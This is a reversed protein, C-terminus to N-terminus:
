FAELRSKIWSYTENVFITKGNELMISTGAGEIISEHVASIADTNILIKRGEARITLELLAM